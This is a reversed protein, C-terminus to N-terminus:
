GYGLLQCAFAHQHDGNPFSRHIFQDTFNAYLNGKFENRNFFPIFKAIYDFYENCLRWKREVDAKWQKEEAELRGVIIAAFEKTKTRM